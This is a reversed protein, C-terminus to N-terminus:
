QVRARPAPSRVTTKGEVARAAACLRTVACPDRSQPPPVRAGGGGDGSGGGGSAGAHEDVIYTRTHSSGDDDGGGGDGGGDGGSSTNDNADLGWVVASAEILIMIGRAAARLELDDDSFGADAESGGACSGEDLSM